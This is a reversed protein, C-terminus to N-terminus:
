AAAFPLCRFRGAAKRGAGAARRCLDGAYRDHGAPDQDFLRRHRDAQGLVDAGPVAPVPRRDGQPSRQVGGRDIPRRVAAADRGSQHNPGSGPTYSPHHELTDPDLIHVGSSGPDFHVADGGYNVAPQGSRDYLYFQKPATQLAKRPWRRPSIRWRMPKMWGPAPM